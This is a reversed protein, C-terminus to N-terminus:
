KENPKRPGKVSYIGCRLWVAKIEEPKIEIPPMIVLYKDCDYTKMGQNNIAKSILSNFFEFGEIHVFGTGYDVFVITNNAFPSLAKLGRFQSSNIALGLLKAWETEKITADNSVLRQLYNEANDGLNTIGGWYGRGVDDVAKAADVAVKLTNSNPNKVYEKVECLFFGFLMGREEDRAIDSSGDSM